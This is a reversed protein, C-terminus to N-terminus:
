NPPRGEASAEPKLYKYTDTHFLGNQIVEGDQTVTKYTDWETVPNGEADDWEDVKESSMEVQKGNPRGWIEATVDGTTRDVSEKVLVYSDNNNRFKFDIAGFWVTADFGPRIYPLEAYHPQREVPELGALNVAMYLTSSVQCLGGGEATDVRGRQIVKTEAYDLPAALENFSFVEGPALMTDNVANSSIELNEVRGPSDDYTLYNTSYEGLLTTPKMRRAEATTLKPEAAVVPVEYARDGEFLGSAMDEVLREEEVRRGTEGPTVSVETGNVVYDAEVPEVTLAGFVESLSEGLRGRNVGVRIEGNEAEFSLSEGLDAPSLTWQEDAASLTASESIADRATDAAEQVAADQIEPEIEGGVLEAEGTLDTVAREVNAATASVDVRFGSQAEEVRIEGNEVSVGAPEAKSGVRRELGEVSSRVMEPDYSVEPEIGAAGFAAKGLDGLRAPISGERGVAYAESVTEETDFEVGLERAPLAADRRTGVLEIEDLRDSTEAELLVRAEEPTKGGLAVDGVSVGRHIKGADAGADFAVLVSLAACAVLVAMAIRSRELKKGVVGFTASQSRRASRDRKKEWKNAAKETRGRAL